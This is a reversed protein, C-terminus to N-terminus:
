ALLGTAKPVPKNKECLQSKSCFILISLSVCCSCILSVGYKCMRILKLPADPYSIRDPKQYSEPYMALGLGKQWTPQSVATPGFRTTLRPSIEQLFQSFILGCTIARSTM